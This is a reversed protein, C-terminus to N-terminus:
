VVAGGHPDDDEDDRDKMRGILTAFGGLFGGVGLVVVWWTIPQQLLVFGFLLLPGGVVALWAFKTTVDPQPLPPPEPPVFHGEDEEPLEYDRPGPRPARVVFGSSTISSGSNLSGPGRRDDDDGSGGEPDAGSVDEADPWLGDTDPEVGYAAVLQAWAADEDLPVGPPEPPETGDETGDHPEDREAM